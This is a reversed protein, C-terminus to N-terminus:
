RSEIYRQIEAIVRGQIEDTMDPWIPLSLIRLFARDANPLLRHTQGYAPHHHLPRYHVGTAISKSALHEHLGDRYPTQICYIHWSSEACPPPTQVISSLEATYRQAIEHRRANM